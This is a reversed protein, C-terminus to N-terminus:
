KGTTRMPSPNFISFYVHNKEIEDPGPARGTKLKRLQAALEQSSFPQCDETKRGECRCPRSKAQKIEKKITRDRLRLRVNKSVNAYSRVFAEAKARDEVALQGRDGNVAQGPCPSHVAGEMKKLIKAVRGVTAPKNLETSAFQRFSRQRAAAEAEAARKKAIKWRESTARSPAQQMAARAERRESIADMLDPDEAWPRPDTRPAGRSGGGALVWSPQPSGGPCSRWASTRCPFGRWRRSATPPSPQGTPRRSPGSPRGRGGPSAGKWPSLSSKRYTTAASTKVSRGPPEGRWTGTPLSWM